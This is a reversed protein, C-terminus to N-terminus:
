QVVCHAHSNYMICYVRIKLFYNVFFIDTKSFVFLKLWVVVGGGLLHPPRTTLTEAEISRGDRTRMEAQPRGVTHDSRYYQVIIYYFGWAETPQSDLFFIIVTVM